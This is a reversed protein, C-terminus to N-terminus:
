GVAAIIAVAMAEPSTRGSDFTLEASLPVEYAAGAGPLNSIAGHKSRAYLHKPDRAEVVERECELYVEFFREVRARTRDRYARKLATASVVVCAGGAAGLEALEAIVGYFWDREGDTYTANPTLVHRLRDSDLWLTARGRESLRAILARALTTKGSAPLGTIWIVQGVPCTM